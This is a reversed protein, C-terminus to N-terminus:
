RAGPAGSTESTESPQPRAAIEVEMGAAMAALGRHGRSPFVAIVSAVGLVTGFFVLDSQTLLTYGGIGVLLRIPRALAVPLRSPRGRLLVVHEGVTSGTALVSVAQVAFAVLTGAWGAVLAPVEVDLVRGALQVAIGVGGGVLIVILLDAVMGLLRRGATVRDPASAGVRRRLPLVLLGGLAAGLTNTLLDGTDFVRYPCPFVGWVGTVQTVEVVLSVGLGAVTATGVGRRSLLVVFAGLPLFLLVNFALQQFAANGLVNWGTRTELVEAFGALPDLEVGACRFDMSDPIPTLTYAWIGMLYVILALWLLLRGTSFGGRRRYSLALIPVFALVVVGAGVVLALVGPLIREM